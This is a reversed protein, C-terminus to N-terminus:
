ILTPSTIHIAYSAIIKCESAYMNSTPVLTNGQKQQRHLLNQHLHDQTTSKSVCCAYDPTDLNARQLTQLRSNRREKPWQRDAALISNHFHKTLSTLEFLM